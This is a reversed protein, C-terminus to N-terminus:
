YQSFTVLLAKSIYNYEIVPRRSLTSEVYTEFGALPCASATHYLLYTGGTYNCASCKLVGIGGNKNIVEMLPHLGLYHGGFIEHIVYPNDDSAITEDFCGLLHGVSGLLEVYGKWREM